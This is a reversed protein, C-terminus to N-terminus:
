KKKVKIELKFLEQGKVNMSFNTELEKNNKSCYFEFKKALDQAKNILEDLEESEFEGIVM